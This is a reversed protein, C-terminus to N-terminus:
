HPAAYLPIAKKFNWPEEPYARQLRSPRLRHSLNSMRGQRPRTRITPFSQQKRVQWNWGHTETDSSSNFDDDGNYEASITKTGTTETALDCTGSGDSLTITCSGGEGDSVSVSGGPTGSGPSVASVTAAVTYSQGTLSPDASDSIIAVTSSAKTVTHSNTKSATSFQNDGGYNLTLTDFGGGDLRHQLSGSGGTLASTCQGAGTGSGDM